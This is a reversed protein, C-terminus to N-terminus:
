FFNRCSWFTKWGTIAKKADQLRVLDRRIQLLWLAVKTGFTTPEAHIGHTRGVMITERYQNACELLAVDLNKAQSLILDMAKSLIISQATDVVDSSTLGYHVFRSAENGMESQVVDVFAAVDHHTIAERELVKQVFNVDVVPQTQEVTKADAESIVGASLAKVVAVEVDLWTQMRNVDNFLEGMEATTYREIM